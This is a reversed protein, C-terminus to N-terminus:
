RPTSSDSTTSSESEPIRPARLFERDRLTADTSCNNTIIYELNPYTQALVSEICEALTEAGNYVPTVVSVLLESRANMVPPPVKRVAGSVVDAPRRSAGRPPRSVSEAAVSPRM